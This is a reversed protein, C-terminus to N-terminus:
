RYIETYLYTENSGYPNSRKLRRERRRPRWAGCWLFTVACLFSYLCFAGTIIIANAASLFTVTLVLSAMWLAVNAISMACGRARAPLTGGDAGM